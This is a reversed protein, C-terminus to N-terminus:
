YGFGVLLESVPTSLDLSGTFLMEIEEAEEQKKPEEIFLEIMSLSASEEERAPAELFGPEAEPHEVKFGDLLFYSDASPLEVMALVHCKKMIIGASSSGCLVACVTPAFLHRRM